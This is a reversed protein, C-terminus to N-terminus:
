SCGSGKKVSLLSKLVPSTTRCGHKVGADGERVWEVLEKPAFLPELQSSESDPITCCM